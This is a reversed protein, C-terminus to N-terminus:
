RSLEPHDFARLMYQLLIPELAGKTVRHMVAQPYRDVFCMLASYSARMLERRCLKMIRPIVPDILGQASCLQGVLEPHEGLYMLVNPLVRLRNHLTSYQLVYLEGTNHLKRDGHCTRGYWGVFMTLAQLPNTHLLSMWSMLGVKEGQCMGLVTRLLEAYRRATLPNVPSAVTANQQSLLRFPGAALEKAVAHVGALCGLLM